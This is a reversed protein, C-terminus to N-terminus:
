ITLILALSICEGTHIIHCSRHLFDLGLLIQNILHKQTAISLKTAVKLVDELNPGLVGMVLCTHTGNPGTHRFHDLLQVVHHQGPHSQDAQEIATMLGLEDPSSKNTIDATQILCIQKNKPTIILYHYSIM